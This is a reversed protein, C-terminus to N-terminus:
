LEIKIHSQQKESATRQQLVIFNANTFVEYMVTNM